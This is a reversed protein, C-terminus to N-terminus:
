SGDFGLLELSLKDLGLVLRLLRPPPMGNPDGCDVEVDDDDCEEEEIDEELAAIDFTVGFSLCFSKTTSSSQFLFFFM